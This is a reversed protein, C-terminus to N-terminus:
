EVMCPHCSDTNAPADSPSWVVIEMNQGILQDGTLPLVFQEKEKQGILKWLWPNDLGAQSLYIEQQEFVTSTTGLTQTDIPNSKELILIGPKFEPSGKDKKQM